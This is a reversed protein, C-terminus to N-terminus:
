SEKKAVQPSIKRDGMTSLYKVRTGVLHPMRVISAEVIAVCTVTKGKRMYETPSTERTERGALISIKSMIGYVISAPNIAVIIV